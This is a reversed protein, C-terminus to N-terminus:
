ARGGDLSLNIGNAAPNEMLFRCGDVIDRMAPLSKTLSRQRAIDLMAANGAWFPSDEVAGPHIANVRVPAMEVALTTVLGVIATNVTTMTTSGPYPVDKSIGGFVLISGEPAIRSRLASVAAAYGVLKVTALEIARAAHYEALSNRDRTMGALVLNRVQGIDMLAAALRDPQSLDAAIGRVQGAGPLDIEAQISAAADAARAKDRGAVIVDQGHLALDMALARGIGSTGGIILAGYM